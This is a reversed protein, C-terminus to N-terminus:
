NILTPTRMLSCPGHGKKDPDREQEDCTYCASTFGGHILVMSEQKFRLRVIFAPAENLGEPWGCGTGERVGRNATSSSSSADDTPVSRGGVGIRGEWRLCRSFRVVVRMDSLESPLQCGDGGGEGGFALCTVRCDEAEGEGRDM